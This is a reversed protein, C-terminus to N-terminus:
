STHEGTPSEICCGRLLRLCCAYLIESNKCMSDLMTTNMEKISALYEAAPQGAEQGPQEQAPAFFENQGQRGYMGGGYMGGGYM